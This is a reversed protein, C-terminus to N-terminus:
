DDINLVRSKRSQDSYENWHDFVDNLIRNTDRWCSVEEAWRDRDLGVLEKELNSQRKSGLDSFYPAERVRLLQTGLFSEQYAHNKRIRYNIAHRAGLQRVLFNIQNKQVHAREEPFHLPDTEEPHQIDFIRSTLDAPDSLPRLNSYSSRTDNVRTTQPMYQDRNAYPLNRGFYESEIGDRQNFIM